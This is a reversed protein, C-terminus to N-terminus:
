YSYVQTDIHRFTQRTVDLLVYFSLLYFGEVRSLDGEGVESELMLLVKM